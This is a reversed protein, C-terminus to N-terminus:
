REAVKKVKPAIRGTFGARRNSERNRAREAKRRVFQRSRFQQPTEEPAFFGPKLRPETTYAEFALKQFICM